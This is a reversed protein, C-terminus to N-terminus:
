QVGVVRITVGQQQAKLALRAIEMAQAATLDSAKIVLELTKSHIDDARVVDPVSSGGNFQVLKNLYGSLRSYLAGASQYSRAALDVTKVSIAEGTERVFRDITRFNQVLGNGFKETLARHLEIGRQLAPKLFKDALGAVEQVEVQAEELIRPAEEEALAMAECAPCKGDADTLLLPDGLAYTYRNWLQPRKPSDKLHVLPDASLFRGALPTTSRAHMYDLDDAPSAPDALDREHGTFKLRESDQNFATAETGYPLYVHYAKRNGALNTILRPTGLHDVDMHRQEGTSLFGGLITGDRYVYDEWLNSGVWANWIDGYVEVERRVKKDLGRLTWRDFRLLGNTPPQFSWVREDDADYMYWWEQGGNQYHKLMNLEDYDYSSGNWSRLNGSADYTGATLHNTAPDTPTNNPSLSQLNAFADYTATQSVFTNGTTSDLSNIEMQASLLRSVQDYSFSGHGIQIPNGSLDYAYSGSIWLTGGPGTSSISSPRPLYNPDLGYTTTVGNSHSVTGVAGNPYYSIGAYGAVSTLYGNTYANQVQRTVTGSCNTFSPACDPYTELSVDGLQTYTWSQNFAEQGGTAQGNFTHQLNRQSVRGDLGQYTYTYTWADTYPTNNYFIHNFRTAQYLRGLAGAAVNDYTFQKVCTPTTIPNPNCNSGQFTNYILTPREEGDYVYSLDDAGEATRHFHGRSDYALFDKHHGLGLANAATEPHIEWTLDGRHDFNFTRNQTSGGASTSVGTLRSGSDYTYNTAVIAGGSGSPETVSALRGFRDYSEGTTSSVAAAGANVWTTRTMFSVGVYGFTTDRSGDAPADPPRIASVRDFPDYRLYQTLNQHPTGQASEATKHGLADYDTTKGSFTGDPMRIDQRILRGLADYSYKTRALSTGPSGNQQQDVTLLALSSPSSAPHYLYQTWAGDRPQVYVLRGSSDYSFRTQINATDRSFTPLGTSADIGRDLSYFSANVYRTTARVGASYTHDLEYEPQAPLAQQCLLGSTSTVQANDGGYYRESQVNGNGDPVFQQIVDNALLAATPDTGSQSYTRRRLLFGTNADFCSSRLDAAGNEEVYDYNSTGLVWPATPAPNVYNGTYTNSPQDVSYSRLSPNYQTREIRVNNGPFTGDNTSLRYHGVGDFDTLTYGAKYGDDAHVTEHQAERGNNNTADPPTTYVGFNVQDREYRVYESRRLNGSGGIVQESLFLNTGALPQLSSYPRGYDWLTGPGYGAATSISFYHLRRTGAPDTVTNVLETNVPQPTLATSYTWTGIVGGNQDYTTRTAVGPNQQRDIIKTSAQPFTYLQYTWGLGGLTPLTLRTLSGSAYQCNGAGATPLSYGSPGPAYTSGDPFSVSTLLPATTDGFNKDSMPCARAFAPPVTYNFQYTAPAGGFAALVVRSVAGGYPATGNYPALDSRFFVWHTRGQSDGMRWCSTEGAVAGLCAGPTGVTQYDIGVQNGFADRMQTIRGLNDFHHVTGDPFEIEDYENSQHANYRKLRLYTGDRTYLVNEVGTSLSDQVGNFNDDPDSLHLTAYFLHQSGDPAEYIALAQDQLTNQATIACVPAAPTVPYGFGLAGFSVRWGMGANSCHSPAADSETFFGGNGDPYQVTWFDWPNSNGVLTFRYKFAGNVPYTIGLPITVTLSGNFLNVNDVNGVQFVQDVAVGGNTNPHPSAAASSAQLALGLLGAALLSVRLRRDLAMM